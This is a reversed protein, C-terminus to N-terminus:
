VEPLIAELRLLRKLKTNDMVLREARKEKFITQMDGAPQPTVLAPDAGVAAAIMRGLDYKSYEGDSCFNVIGRTQEAPLRALAALLAMAKDYSLASRIMGQLLPMEEGRRLTDAIVDYFHKKEFPSPGLMYSFRVATFGATLVPQEAAQKQRGYENIPAAKDTERFKPTGPANEGYVCDTSAFFLKEIDLPLALFHNLADINVARGQAPHAALEDPNHRAAFWFVTLPVHAYRAALRLLDERRTVDCLVFAAEAGAPIAKETRVTAVTQGPAAAELLRFLRNGAFGAGVILNM